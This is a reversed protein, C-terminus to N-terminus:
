AGTEKEKERRRCTLTLMLGSLAFGAGLLWLVDAFRDGTKPASAKGERVAHFTWGVTAESRTWGIRIDKDVTLRIKLERRDGAKWTGLPLERAIM